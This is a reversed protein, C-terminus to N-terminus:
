RPGSVTDVACTDPRLKYGLLSDAGRFWEPEALRASLEAVRRRRAASNYEDAFAMANARSGNYFRWFITSLVVSAVVWDDDKAASYAWVLSGATVTFALLGFAPRGAYVEGSGPIISSLIAATTPNRRPFHEASRINAAIDLRGAQEYGGAASSLDGDQLRLWGNASQLEGRRTSDGTFVLLDSMEFEALDYRGRRAYFGALASQAPESLDSSARGAAHMQEAAARLNDGAALSLGLKFRVLATAPAATDSAHLARRFEAAAERAYGHKLLSDGLSMASQLNRIASQGSPVGSSM